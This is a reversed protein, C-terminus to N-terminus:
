THSRSSLQWIRFHRLRVLEEYLNPLPVAIYKVGGTKPAIRERYIGPLVHVEDGWQALEAARSVTRFPSAETGDNKDSASTHCFGNM